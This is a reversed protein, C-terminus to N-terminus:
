RPMTFRDAPSERFEPFKGFVWRAQRANEKCSGWTAVSAFTEKFLSSTRWRICAISDLLEPHVSNTSCATVRMAYFAASPMVERAWCNWKRLSSALLTASESSTISGVLSGGQFVAVTQRYIGVSLVTWPHHAIRRDCPGSTRPLLGLKCAHARQLVHRRSPVARGSRLSSVVTIM